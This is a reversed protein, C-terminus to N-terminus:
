TTTKKYKFVERQAGAATPRSCHKRRRMEPPTLMSENRLQWTEAGFGGREATSHSVPAPTFSVVSTRQGAPKEEPETGLPHWQFVPLPPERSMLMLGDKIGGSATPGLEWNQETRYGGAAPGKRSVLLLRHRARRLQHSGVEVPDSKCAEPKLIEGASLSSPYYSGGATVIKTEETDSKKENM